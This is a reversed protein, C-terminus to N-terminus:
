DEQGSSGDDIFLDNRAWLIYYEPITPAKRTVVWSLGDDPFAGSWGPAAQWLFDTGRYAAALRPEDQQQTIVVEPLAEAELNSASRLNPFNRMSWTLSPANGLIVIEIGDRRGTHWESLDGLTTLLLDEELTTPQPYWWEQVRRDASVIMGWASGLTYLGLVLTLGWVLGRRAVQRSWGVAIMGTSVIILAAAGGVLRWRIGVAQPDVMFRSIASFNLWIYVLFLTILGALGVSTWGEEKNWTLDLSFERAALLWLPILPWILDSIQRAPYILALGLALLFWASLWRNLSDGVLWGRVAAVIGFILPWLHYAMLATALRPAPITPQQTWGRLYVPLADALAGIGGPYRLYLTGMLLIAAGGSLLGIRLKNESRSEVPWGAPLSLGEKGGGTRGIVWAGGFLLSIGVWGAIATPGSLLGLGTFIGALAPRQRLWFILAFIGFLAAVMHANAQRSLAVLGPDLAFGFAVVLAASRGLRDRLFFPALVLLCGALAPLLRALGASSGLLYFLFGTPLIYGPQPGLVVPQGRAVGLAQLAWGAELDALPVQGLAYLRLLLALSLALGYLGQELSIKGSNEKM